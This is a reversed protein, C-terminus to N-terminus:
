AEVPGCSGAGDAAAVLELEFDSLEDNEDMTQILDQATFRLGIAAGIEVIAAPNWSGDGVHASVKAQLAPDADVLQRFQLVNSHGDTHQTM